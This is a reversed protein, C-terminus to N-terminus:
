SHTRAETCSPGNWGVPSPPAGSQQQSALPGVRALTDGHWAGSGRPLPPPLTTATNAPQMPDRSPSTLHCPARRTWAHPARPHPPPFTAHHGNTVHESPPERSGTAAQSKQGPPTAAEGSRANAARWLPRHGTPEARDRREVRQPCRGPNQLDRPTGRLGGCGCPPQEWLSSEQRLAPQGGAAEM